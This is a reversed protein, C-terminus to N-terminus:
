KVSPINSNLKEMAPKIEYLMIDSVTVYDAFQLPEELSATVEQLERLAQSYLNWKEYDALLTSLNPLSDIISFTESLWQIGELLSNVKQWVETNVENYFDKALEEVAPIARTLYEGTSSLIERIYETITLFAMCVDRINKINDELYEEFNDYVEVGDIILHSFYKDTCSFAKEEITQMLKELGNMDNDFEIHENEIILRM